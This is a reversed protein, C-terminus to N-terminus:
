AHSDFSTHANHIIANATQAYCMSCLTQFARIDLSTPQTALPLMQAQVEQAVFTNVAVSLYGSGPRDFRVKGRIIADAVTPHYDTMLAKLNEVHTTNDKNSKAVVYLLVEFFSTNTANAIAEVHNMGRLDHSNCASMVKYFLSPSQLEGDIETMGALILKRFIICAAHHVYEAQSESKPLWMINPATKCNSLSNYSLLPSTHGLASIQSRYLIPVNLVASPETICPHPLVYKIHQHIEYPIDKPSHGTLVFIQNDEYVPTGSDIKRVLEEVSTNIVTYYPPVEEPKGSYVTIRQNPLKVKDNDDSLVPPYPVTRVTNRQCSNLKVCWNALNLTHALRIQHRLQDPISNSINDIHASRRLATRMEETFTGGWLKEGVADSWRTSLHEDFQSSITLMSRRPNPIKPFDPVSTIECSLGTASFPGNSIKPVSAIWQPINLQFLEVGTGSQLLEALDPHDELIQKMGQFTPDIPMIKVKWHLWKEFLAKRLVKISQYDGSRRIFLATSDLYACLRQIPCVAQSSDIPRLLLAAVTSNLQAYSGTSGTYQSLFVIVGPVIMQKYPNLDHGMAVTLMIILAAHIPTSCLSFYDDGCVELNSHHIPPYSFLEMCLANVMHATTLNAASNILQTYRLGSYLGQFTRFVLPDLPPYTVYQAAVTDLLVSAHENFEEMSEPSKLHPRLIKVLENYIIYMITTPHQSNYDKYDACNPTYDLMRRAISHDRSYRVSGTLGSRVSPHQQLAKDAKSLVYEATLYDSLRAPYLSRPKALELKEVMRSVLYRSTRPRIKMVESYDIQEALAKKDLRVKTDQGRYSIKTRGGAASGSSLSTQLAVIFEDISEITHHPIHRVIDHCINRWTIEFEELYTIHTGWPASDDEDDDHSTHYPPCTLLKISSPYSNRNKMENPIDTLNDSRGGFSGLGIVTTLVEITLPNGFPDIGSSKIITDIEKTYHRYKDVPYIHAPYETIIKSILQRNPNILLVLIYGIVITRRMGVRTDQLFKSVLSRVVNSNPGSLDGVANLVSPLDISLSSSDGSPMEFLDQLKLYYQDYKRWRRHALSTAWRRLKSPLKPLQSEDSRMKEKIDLYEKVAGQQAIGCFPARVVKITCSIWKQSLESTISGNNYLLQVLELDSLPLPQADAALWIPVNSHIIGVKQLDFHSFFGPFHSFFINPM